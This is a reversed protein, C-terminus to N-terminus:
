IVHSGFTVLVYPVGVEVFDVIEIVLFGKLSFEKVLVLISDPPSDELLFLNLQLFQFSQDGLDILDSLLSLNHDIPLSLDDSQTQLFHLFGILIQLISLFIEELGVLILM